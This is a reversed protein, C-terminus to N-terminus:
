AVNKYPNTGAIKYDEYGSTLNWNNVRNWFLIGPEANDWNNHCLKVFLEYANIKRVIQEKTSEVNFSLDIDRGELVAKMFEDNIRVSINANTVKDLNSKIELFDEIDPHYVDMSIM